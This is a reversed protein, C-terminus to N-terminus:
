GSWDRKPAPNRQEQWHALQERAAKYGIESIPECAAFDLSAFHRVDPQLWSREWSM